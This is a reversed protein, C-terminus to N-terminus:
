DKKQPVAQAIPLYDWSIIKWKDDQKKLSIARLKDQVITKTDSFRLNSQSFRVKASAESGEIKIELFDRNTVSLTLREKDSSEVDKKFEEYSVIKGANPGGQLKGQFEKESFDQMFKRVDGKEIGDLASMIVQRVVEEESAAGGFAYNLNNTCLGCGLFVFLSVVMMKFIRM